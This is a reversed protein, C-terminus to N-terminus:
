GAAPAAAQAFAAACYELEELSPPIDLIFTDVGQRLYAALEAAVSGVEGV